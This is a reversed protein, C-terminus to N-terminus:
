KKGYRRREAASMDRASLILARGTQKYVFFCILYRGVDTQGLAAYVNEGARHGNEVFRFRPRNNFLEVVEDQGLGHKRALKQVIEALWIFGTIKL